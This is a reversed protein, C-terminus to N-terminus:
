STFTPLSMDTRGGPLSRKTRRRRLKPVRVRLLADAARMRALLRWRRGRPLGLGAGLSRGGTGFPVSTLRYRLYMASSLPAFLLPRWAPPRMEQQALIQAFEFGYRPLERQERALPYLRSGLQRCVFSGQGVLGLRQLGFAARQAVLRPAGLRRSGGRGWFGRMASLADSSRPALRSARAQARMRALLASSGARM